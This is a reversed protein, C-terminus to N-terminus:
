KARTGRANTRPTYWLDKFAHIWPFLGSFGNNPWELRILRDLIALHRSATMFPFGCLANSSNRLIKCVASGIDMGETAIGAEMGSRLELSHM